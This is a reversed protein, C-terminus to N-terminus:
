PSPPATRGLRSAMETRSTVGLKRYVRGLSASVTRPSVFLVDAVERNTRGAAVLEAIQREGESLDTPTPPRGGIRALEDRTRAGWLEAGLGELEGLAGLLATRAAGWKRARRAIQGKTFLTRAQQFPVSTREGERLADGCAELADDTRGEAAAVLARGRAAAALGSPRDVAQSSADLWDILATAQSLEGLQVLAEIEDPLWWVSAPDDLGGARGAAVLPGLLEHARDPHGLSLELFGLVAVNAGVGIPLGAEIGAMAGENAYTRAEDVRGLHAAILGAAYCTPPRIARQGTQIALGDAAIAREYGREWDGTWCDLEALRYWVWPLAGDDGREVLEREGDLLLTRAEEIRDSWSLVHATIMSPRLAAPGPEDWDELERARDLMDWRVGHGLMFSSVAIQCLAGALIHPVGAQEALDAAAQAHSLTSHLDGSAFAPYVLDHEIAARLGLDAGAEGLAEELLTRSGTVDDHQYRVRAVHFLAGAREPGPAAVAAAEAFLDAALSSDGAAFRADGAAICRRWVAHQDDEPTLTRALEVLEAAADTAGRRRARESAQELALAVDEDPADAALALHRAREEQDDVAEALRAHADRRERPSASTAVTSTLLPHTFRVTGGALEIIGARRGREVAREWGAGAARALTEETPQALLSALLLAHRVDAPLRRVREVLLVHLDEPVPLPQGPGPLTSSEALARGLELAFFPNGRSTQQLHLLVTRPLTVALRDSLLREIAGVSLPGVHLRAASGPELVGALELPVPAEGPGSRVSALLRVPEASLRRLAFAVARASPRDLWQIDDIAVVVPQDRTLARLTSLTAAGVALHDSRGGEGLLLAAELARRQPAPLEDLVGDLVRAFLDGLGAFSLTVETQVPRCSLVISGDAAQAIGEHWLTTKGVGAEGDILLAGWGGGVGDVFDRVAQLEAERGIVGAGAPMPAM